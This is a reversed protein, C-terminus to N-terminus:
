FPGSPAAAACRCGVRRRRAGPGNALGRDGPGSESPSAQPHWHHLGQLVPCPLGSGAGHARRVVQFSSPGPVRSDSDRAPPCRCLPFPPGSVRLGSELGRGAGVAPFDPRAELPGRVGAVGGRTAADGAGEACPLRPVGCAKERRAQECRLGREGGEWGEGGRGGRGLSKPRGPLM